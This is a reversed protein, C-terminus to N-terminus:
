RHRLLYRKGVGSELERYILLKGIYKKEGRAYNWNECGDPVAIQFMKLKFKKRKLLQIGDKLYNLLFNWNQIFYTGFLREVWTGVANETWISVIISQMAFNIM